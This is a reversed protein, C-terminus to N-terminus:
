WNDLSRKVCYNYIRSFKVYEWCLAMYTENCEPKRFQRFKLRSVYKMRDNAIMALEIWPIM